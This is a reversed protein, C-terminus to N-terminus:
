PVARGMREGKQRHKETHQKPCSMQIPPQFIQSCEDLILAVPSRIGWPGFRASPMAGGSEPNKRIFCRSHVASLTPTRGVDAM